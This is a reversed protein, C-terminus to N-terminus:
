KAGCACSKYTEETTNTLACAYKPWVLGLVPPMGPAFFNEYTRSEAKLGVPDGQLKGVLDVVSAGSFDKEGYTERYSYEKPWATGVGTANSAEYVTYGDLTATKANVEAVTFTPRNGNIPSVSPVMKLPVKGGLLRVEDFHTHAFLALRVVDAHKVLTEALGDSSLLLKVKGGDCVDKGKALTSYVNVGPPIHGIVWAQEGKAKVESLEHDLWALEAEAGAKNEQGACDSYNAALYIDDLVLLRTKKLGPVMVAFDGDKDYGAAARKAEAANHLGAMEVASTAQLYQDPSDMRYDGCASDNNGGAIYVPVGPFAAEVSRMVYVATKEAFAAYGSKDKDKLLKDYRCDIAHVLLDGTVTVFAAGAARAKAANLSDTLLTYDPDAGRAHCEKQLAAFSDAQGPSDPEKLIGDWEEVPAAALREAKAPDHLPDFHLDSLMMVKADQGVACMAAMLWVLVLRKMM